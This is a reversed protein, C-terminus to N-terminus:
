ASAATSHGHVLLCSQAQLWRSLHLQSSQHCCQYHLFLQLTECTSSVTLSIFRICYFFRANHFVHMDSACVYVCCILERRDMFFRTPNTKLEFPPSDIAKKTTLRVRWWKETTNAGEDDLPVNQWEKQRKKEVVSWVRRSIM